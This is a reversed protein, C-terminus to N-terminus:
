LWRTYTYHNLIMQDKSVLINHNISAHAVLIRDFPDRTWTLQTAYIMITDFPKPCVTLGLRHSLDTLMAKAEVAIRKIEYLYQLELRVIPSILLDHENLLNQISENFRETLGAYLWVVVHTDLYILSSRGNCLSSTM